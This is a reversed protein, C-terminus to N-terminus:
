VQLSQICELVFLDDAGSKLNPCLSRIEPCATNDILKNSGTPARRLRSLMGDVANYGEIVEGNNSTIVCILLAVITFSTPM